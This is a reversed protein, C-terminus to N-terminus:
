PLRGISRRDAIASAPPWRAIMPDISSSPRVKRLQCSFIWRHAQHQACPGVGRNGAVCEVAEGVLYKSGLIVRYKWVFSQESFLQCFRSAFPFRPMWLQMVFLFDAVSGSTALWGAERRGIGTDPQLLNLNEM